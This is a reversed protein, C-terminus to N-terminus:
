SEADASGGAAAPQEEALLEEPTMYDPNDLIMGGLLLRPHTKLLDV